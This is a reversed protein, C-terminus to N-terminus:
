NYKNAVVKGQTIIRLVLRDQTFYETVTRFKGFPVFPPLDNEDMHWKTLTYNYNSKLPCALNANTHKKFSKVYIQFLGFRHATRLFLCADLRGDYLKMKKKNSAQWYDMSTHMVLEEVDSKLIMGGDVYTRNNINVIRFDIYDILDRLRYKVSFEDMRIRFNREECNVCSHFTIWLTWILTYSALAKM